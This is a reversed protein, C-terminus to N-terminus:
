TLTDTQIVGRENWSPAIRKQLKVKRQRWELNEFHIKCIITKNSIHYFFEKAVVYFLTAFIM